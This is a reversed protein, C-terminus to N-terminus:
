AIVAPGFWIRVSCCVVGSGRRGLVQGVTACGILDVGQCGRSAQDSARPANGPCRGLRGRTLALPLFPVPEGVQYRIIVCYRRVECTSARAIGTARISILPRTRSWWTARKRTRKCLRDHERAAGRVVVCGHKEESAQIGARPYRRLGTRSSWRKMAREPERKGVDLDNVM